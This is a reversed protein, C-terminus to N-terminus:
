KNKENEKEMEKVIGALLKWKEYNEKEKERIKFAKKFDKEKWAEERQMKTHKYYKDRLEKLDKM